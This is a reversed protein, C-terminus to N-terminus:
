SPATSIAATAASSEPPSPPPVARYDRGCLPQLTQRHSMILMEDDLIIGASEGIREYLHKSIVFMNSPKRGRTQVEDLASIMPVPPAGEPPVIASPRWTQVSAVSIQNQATAAPLRTCTSPIGPATPIKADILFFFRSRFGGLSGMTENTTAAYLSSFIDDGFQVVQKVNIIVTVFSNRISGILGRVPSVFLQRLMPGLRVYGPCKRRSRRPPFIATRCWGTCSACAFDDNKGVAGHLGVRIIGIIERTEM